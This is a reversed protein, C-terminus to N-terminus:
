NGGTLVVDNSIASMNARRKGLNLYAAEYTAAIKEIDFHDEVRRRMAAGVSRRLPANSILRSLATRLATADSPECLFARGAPGVQMATGGIDTSVIPLGAAMAELIANSNGEARSPLVFMDMETLREPVNAVHGCFTLHREIGLDAAQQRLEADLPGQGWIHLHAAQKTRCVDAWVTLLIGLQKEENLRGVFVVKCPRSRAHGPQKLQNLKIGNPSILVRSAPYGASSLEALSERSMAVVSNSSLLIAQKIRGFVGRRMGPLGFDGVNALKALTPKGLLKAILIVYLSVWSHQHVHVVDFTGRRRWMHMAIAAPARVARILKHGSWPLRSVPVGDVSDAGSRDADIMGSLVQVSVGRLILAKALEHSQKELGGLVPYPYQPVFMLVRKMNCTGEAADAGVVGRLRGASARPRDARDQGAKSRAIKSTRAVGM